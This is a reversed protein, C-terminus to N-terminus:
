EPIPKSCVGCYGGFKHRYRCQTCNKCAKCPHNGVCTAVLEDAEIPALLLASCALILPRRIM